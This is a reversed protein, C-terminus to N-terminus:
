AFRPCRFKGAAAVHVIYYYFYTNNKLNESAGCDEMRHRRFPEAAESEVTSRSLPLFIGEVCVAEGFRESPLVM